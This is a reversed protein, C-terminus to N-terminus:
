IIKYQQTGAVPEQFERGTSRELVRSKAPSAHAADCGM